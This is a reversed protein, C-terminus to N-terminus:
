LTQPTGLIALLGHAADGHPVGPSEPLSLLRSIPQDPLLYFTIDNRGDNSAPFFDDLAGEWQEAWDTGYPLLSEHM